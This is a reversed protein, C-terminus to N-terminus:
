KAIGSPREKDAGNRVTSSERERERKGGGEKRWLEWTERKNMRETGNETKTLNIRETKTRLGRSSVRDTRSKKM